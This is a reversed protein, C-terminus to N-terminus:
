TMGDSSIRFFVGGGGVLYACLGLVHLLLDYEKPEGDGPGGCQPKAEAM